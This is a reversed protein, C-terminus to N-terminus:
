LDGNADLKAVFADYQGANTLIQQNAGPDFDPDGYFKGTIVPADTSDVALGAAISLNTPGSVAAGFGRVWRLTGTASYRALFVDSADATGRATLRTEGGSPDFDVSGRFWGAVFVDGNRAFAVRHGGDIGSQSPMSIAWRAGGNGDLAAVFIDHGTGAKTLTRQGVGPDFDASGAFHGTMVIDGNPAIRMAGPSLIDQDSGGVTSGWRLQGGSSLRALLIDVQGKSTLTRTGNGPDVDIVDRYNAALQIDGNQHLDVACYGEAFVNSINAAIAVAMQNNGNADYRAVFHAHGQGPSTLQRGNGLPDFDVTGTFAGCIVVNGDRDVAIDWAREETNGGTNGLSLAWQYNGDADLKVLYADYGGRTSLNSVGSGPDFDAQRPGENEAGFYGTVYVNGAADTEIGHPVDLGGGGMSRAWLLRGSADTKTIVTDIAGAATLEQTDSSPDCDITNQYLAAVIINNRADIAVAKGYEQGQSGIGYAFTAGGDASPASGDAGQAADGGTDGAPPLYVADSCAVLSMTLAVLLCWRPGLSLCRNQTKWM